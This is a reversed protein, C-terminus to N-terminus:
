FYRAFSCMRASAVLTLVIGPIIFDVSKHPFTSLAAVYLLFPLTIKMLLCSTFLGITPLTAMYKNAMFSPFGEVFYWFPSMVGFKTRNMMLLKFQFMRFNPVMREQWFYSDLVLSLLSFVIAAPLAVIVAKVCKTFGKKLSLIFLLPMFFIMKSDVFISAASLVVFANKLNNEVFYKLALSLSILSFTADTFRSLSSNLVFNFFVFVAVFFGSIVGQFQATSSIVDLFASVSLSSVFCLLLRCLLLSTKLPMSGLNSALWQIAGFRMLLKLPVGFFLVPVFSFADHGLQTLHSYEAINKGHKVFDFIANIFLFEANISFDFKVVFLTGIFFLPFFYKSIM